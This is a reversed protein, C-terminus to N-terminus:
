SSFSHLKLMSWPNHGSSQFIVEVAPVYGGYKFYLFFRYENKKENFHFYKRGQLM